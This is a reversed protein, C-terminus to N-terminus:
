ERSEARQERREGREERREARQERREGREEERREKVKNIKYYPIENIELSFLGTSHTQVYIYISTNTLSLFFYTILLM